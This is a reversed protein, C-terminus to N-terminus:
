LMNLNNEMAKIKELNNEIKESMENRNAQQSKIYNANDNNLKKYVKRNLMQEANHVCFTQGTRNKTSTMPPCPLCPSLDTKNNYTNVPCRQCTSGTIGNGPACVTDQEPGTQPTSINLRVLNINIPNNTLYAIIVSNNMPVLSFVQGPLNQRKEELTNFTSNIELIKKNNTESDMASLIIKNSVATSIINEYTDLGVINVLKNSKMKYDALVVEAKEKLNYNPYEYEYIDFVDGYSLHNSFIKFAAMKSKGILERKIDIIDFGRLVVGGNESDFTFTFNMKNIVEHGDIFTTVIHSTNNVEEPDNSIPSPTTQGINFNNIDNSFLCDNPSSTSVNINDVNNVNEAIPNKTVTFVIHMWKNYKVRVNDDNNKILIRKDMRFCPALADKHLMLGNYEGSGSEGTCLSYDGIVLKTQGRNSEDIYVWFSFTYDKDIDLNEYFRSSSRNNEVSKEIYFYNFNNIDTQNDIDRYLYNLPESNITEDSLDTYSIKNNTKDVTVRYPKDLVELELDRHLYHSQKRNSDFIYLKDSVLVPSPNILGNLEMKSWKDNKFDYILLKTRGVILLKDDEGFIKNKFDPTFPCVLSKWSKPNIPNINEESDFYDIRRSIKNEENIGFAFYARKNDSGASMFSRPKSLKINTDLVKWKTNYIFVHDHLIIGQYNQNSINLNIGGSIFIYENFTTGVSNHHSLNTSIQPELQLNQNILNFHTHETNFTNNYTLISNNSGILSFNGRNSPVLVINPVFSTQTQPLINIRNFLRNNENNNQPNFQNNTIINSLEAQFNEIRKNGIHFYLENLLIILLVSMAYVKKNKYTLFYAVILLVIALYM